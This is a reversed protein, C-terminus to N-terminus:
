DIERGDDSADSTEATLNSLNLRQEKKAFAIEGRRFKSSCENSTSRSIVKGQTVHSNFPQTPGEFKAVQESLELGNPKGDRPSKSMSVGGGKMISTRPGPQDEYSKTEEYCSLGILAEYSRRNAQDVLEM